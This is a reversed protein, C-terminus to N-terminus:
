DVQRHSGRQNEPARPFDASHDQVRPEVDRWFYSAGRVGGGDHKRQHAAPVGLRIGGDPNRGRIGGPRHWDSQARRGRREHDAFDARRNQERRLVVGAAPRHAGASKRAARFDHALLIEITTADARLVYTRSYYDRHGGRARDGAVPTGPTESDRRRPFIEDFSAACARFHSQDGDARIRDDPDLPAAQDAGARGAALKWDFKAKAPKGDGSNKGKRVSWAIAWANWVLVPKDESCGESYRSIRKVARAASGGGSSGYRHEGGEETKEADFRKAAKLPRQGSNDRRWM